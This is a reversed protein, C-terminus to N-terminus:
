SGLLKQLGEIARALSWDVAYLYTAFFIVAIITIITTQQVEKLTPWTVRKLEARVDRWFSGARELPGTRPGPLNRERRAAQGEPGEGFRAARPASRDGATETSSTRGPAVEPALSPAAADDQMDEFEDDEQEAM